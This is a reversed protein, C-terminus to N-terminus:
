REVVPEPSVWGLFKMDPMPAWDAKLDGVASEIKVISQAIGELTRAARGGAKAFLRYHEDTVLMPDDFVDNGQGADLCEAALRGILQQVDQELEAYVASRRGRARDKMRPFNERTRALQGRRM